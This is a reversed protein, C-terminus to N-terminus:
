RRHALCALFGMEQRGIATSTYHLGHTLELGGQQLMSAVAAKTQLHLTAGSHGDHNKMEKLCPEGTDSRPVVFAFVGGKKMVRGVEAFVVSLDPIIHLLGSCVAHDVSAEELPYPATTVDHELLRSAFGKGECVAMMERSSDLGVVQLGAQHFLISGLGTGIGLDLVTQGPSIHRWALGFLIDPDLWDARTAMKDYIRAHEGSFPKMSKPQESM